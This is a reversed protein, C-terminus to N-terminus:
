LVESELAISASTPIPTLRIPMSYENWEICTGSFFNLGYKNKFWKYMAQHDSFGDKRAFENADHLSLIKGSINIFSECVQVKFVNTCTADKLKVCYKTRQGTYLQLKDGPKCRARRRITQQKMGSLIMDVFEPQFNIAVM